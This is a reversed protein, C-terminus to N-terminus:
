KWGYITPRQSCLGDHYGQLSESHGVIFWGDSALCESIRAVVQRKTDPNFYIMVNRLFIVDFKGIDPLPQNLNIQRFSVHQQLPKDIMLRGAQAGIGKLCYRHLLDSPIEAIREPGYNASRAQALVRTSLDSALIEWASGIGLAEALVMAISYPEEGTSCAASWVRLPRAAPPRRAVFERLADFHAPERFFHTENTTLLDIARQTEAPNKGSIVLAIYSRFDDCGSPSLRRTLRGLVLSRKEASLTIGAVRLLFDRTKQFTPEDLVPTTAEHLM